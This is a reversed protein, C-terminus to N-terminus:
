RLKGSWSLKSRLTSFFDRRKLNILKFNKKSREVLVSESTKLEFRRVGDAVLEIPQAKSEYTLKVRAESSLVLPRNSITHPCIPTMVMAELGPVLIPGGAALSYATSGNPTSLIVGDAEFNNVYLGDVEIRIDVLSPNQARHLVIDNLCYTLTEGIRAELILRKEITYEGRILEELSKELDSIPVDAMFGLHGINVGLIPLNFDLYKHAYRLMTGDGGLSILFDVSTPPISSLKPTSFIESFEDEIVVHIKNKQFHSLIEKVVNEAKKEVAYAVLLAIIM